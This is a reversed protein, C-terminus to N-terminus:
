AGTTKDPILFGIGALGASILMGKKLNIIGIAAAVVAVLAGLFVIQKVNM